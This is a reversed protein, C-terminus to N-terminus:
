QQSQLFISPPSNNGHIARIHAEMTQQSGYCRRKCEPFTCKYSRKRKSKDQQPQLPPQNTSLHKGNLAYNLLSLALDEDQGITKALVKNLALVDVSARHLDLTSLSHFAVLEAMNFKAPKPLGPHDKYWDKLFAITCGWMWEDQEPRDKAQQLLMRQDFAKNHTFIVHSGKGMFDLMRQYVSSWEDASKLDDDAIGNIHAAQNTKGEPLKVLSHFTRDETLEYIAVEIISATPGLGSTEFDLLYVHFAEGDVSQPKLIVESPEDSPHFPLSAVDEWAKGHFLMLHSKLCGPYWTCYHCSEEPCTYLETQKSFASTKCTSHRITLRKRSPRFTHLLEDLLQQQRASLGVSASKTKQLQLHTHKPTSLLANADEMTFEIERMNYTHGVAMDPLPYPRDKAYKKIMELIVRKYFLAYTNLTPFFFKSRMISFHHEVALTSFATVSSPLSSNYQKSHLNELHRLCQLSGSLQLYFVKTLGHLEKHGDFKFQQLEQIAEEMVLVRDDFSLKPNTWAHYYQRLGNLFLRLSTFEILEDDNHSIESLEITNLLETGEILRAAAKMEMKDSPAIDGRNIKKALAPIRNHLKYLTQQGFTAKKDITTIGEPRILLNRGNRLTHSYDFGHEVTPYKQLLKKRYSECGSFADSFAAVVEFGHKTLLQVLDDIRQFMTAGTTKFTPHYSFPLTVKTDLTTIFTQLVHGALDVKTDKNISSLPIPNMAGVLRSRECDKVLGTLVEIEDFGLIIKRREPGLRRKLMELWEESVGEYPDSPRIHERLTSKSPLMLSWDGARVKLEGHRGQYQFGKGRLRSLTAGGGSFQITHAYHIYDLPWQMRGSGHVLREMNTTMLRCIWSAEFSASSKAVQQALKVFPHAQLQELTDNEKELANIAAKLSAIQAQYTVKLMKMRTELFRERERDKTCMDRKAYVSNTTKNLVHHYASRLTNRLSNCTECVKPKFPATSAITSSSVTRTRLLRLHAEDMPIVFCSNGVQQFMAQLQQKQHHFPYITSGFREQGWKVYNIDQLLCCNRSKVAENDSILHELYDSRLAKVEMERKENEKERKENEMERKENEKERKEVEMERKEVEMERKEHEKERMESEEKSRIDAIIKTIRLKQNLNDELAKTLYQKEAQAVDALEALLEVLPHLKAQMKGDCCSINQTDCRRDGNSKKQLKKKQKKRKPWHKFYRNTRETPMLLLIPSSILFSQSRFDTKVAKVGV